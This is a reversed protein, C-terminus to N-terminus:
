VSEFYETAEQENNFVRFYVLPRGTFDCLEMETETEPVRMIGVKWQECCDECKAGDCNGCSDATEMTSHRYIHGSRYHDIWKRCWLEGMWEITEDSYM